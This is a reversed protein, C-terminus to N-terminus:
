LHRTLMDVDAPLLPFSPPFCLFRIIHIDPSIYHIVPDFKMIGSEERLSGFWVCMSPVDTM